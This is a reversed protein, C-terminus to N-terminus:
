FLNSLRQRLRNQERTTKLFLWCIFTAVITKAVTPLFCILLYFCCVSRIGSLFCNYIYIYIYRYIYMYMYTYIYVNSYFDVLLNSKKKEKNTRNNARIIQFEFCKQLNKITDKPTQLFIMTQSKNNRHIAIYQNGSCFKIIKLHREHGDGSFLEKTARLTPLQTKQIPICQIYRVDVNHAPHAQM